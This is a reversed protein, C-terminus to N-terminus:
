KGDVTNPSGRAIWALMARRDDDSPQAKVTPPPMIKGELHWKDIVSRIGPQHLRWDDYTDLHLEPYALDHKPSTGSATHCDACWKEVFRRAAPFATGAMPRAAGERAASDVATAPALVGIMAAM